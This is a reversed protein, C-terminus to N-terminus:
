DVVSAGDGVVAPLRVVMAGKLNDPVHGGATIVWALPVRPTSSPIDVYGDTCIFAIDPRSDAIDAFVHTLETGGNGMRMPERAFESAKMPRGQLGHDFMQIEVSGRGGSEAAIAESLIAKVDEDSMSGSTDVYFKAHVKRGKRRGPPVESRRGPRMFTARKTTTTHRAVIGSILDAFPVDGGRMMEDYFTQMSGPTCGATTARQHAKGMLSKAITNAMSDVVKDSLKEMGDPKKSWQGHDDMFDGDADIPEGEGGNGGRLVLVRQRRKELWEETTTGPGKGDGPKFTSQKLLPIYAEATLGPPLMADEIRNRHDRRRFNKVTMAWTPLCRDNMFASNVALECGLMFYDKDEEKIADNRLIHRQMFHGCEHALVTAGWTRGQEMDWSVSRGNAKLGLFVFFEPNLHLRYHDGGFSVAATPLDFSINRRMENAVYSLYKYSNRMRIFAQEIANEYASTGPGVGLRTLLGTYRYGKVGKDMAGHLIDEESINRKGDLILLGNDDHNRSECETKETKSQKGNISSM